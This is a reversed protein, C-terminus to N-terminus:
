QVMPNAQDIKDIPPNQDEYSWVEYKGVGVYEGTAIAIVLKGIDM